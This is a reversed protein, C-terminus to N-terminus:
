PFPDRARAVILFAAALAVAGLAGAAGAVTDFATFVQTYSFLLLSAGTVSLAGAAAGMYLSAM